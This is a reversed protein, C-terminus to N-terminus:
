ENEKKYVYDIEKVYFTDNYKIKVKNGKTLNNCISPNVEFKYNEQTVIYYRNYGHEAVRCNVESINGVYTSYDNNESCATLLLISSTLLLKKIM